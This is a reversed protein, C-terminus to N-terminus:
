NTIELKIEGVKTTQQYLGAFYSVKRSEQKQRLLHYVKFQSSIGLDAVSLQLEGEFM